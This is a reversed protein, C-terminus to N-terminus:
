EELGCLYDISRSVGRAIRLSTGVGPLVGCVAKGLSTGSVGMVAAWETLTWDKKALEARLAAAFIAGLDVEDEAVDRM